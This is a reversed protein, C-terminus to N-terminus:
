TGGAPARPTGWYPEFLAVLMAVCCGTRPVPIGLSRGCAWEVMAGGAHRGCPGVGGRGVERAVVICAPRRRDGKRIPTHRQMPREDFGQCRAVGEYYRLPSPPPTPNPPGKRDGHPHGPPSATVM